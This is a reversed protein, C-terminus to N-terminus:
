RYKEAAEIYHAAAMKNKEIEEERILRRVKAPSGMAVSGDPIVTGETVLSGAGIICNKGIIAGNMIISGMGILSNDDIRCGHIIAGHGITVGEGITINTGKDLHLVCNDQINSDKGIVIKEDDARIVANFWVSVNEGMEVNGLIRAGEAIFVSKAM